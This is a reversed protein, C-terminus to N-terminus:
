RDQPFKLRADAMIKLYADNIETRTMGDLSPGSFRVFKYVSTNRDWGTSSTGSILRETVVVSSGDMRGNILYDEAEAMAHRSFNSVNTTYTCARKPKKPYLAQNERPWSPYGHEQCAGVKAVTHLATMFHAREDANLPHLIQNLSSTFSESSAASVKVGTDASDFSYTSASHNVVGTKAVANGIQNSVDDIVTSCGALVSLSCGFIFVNYLKM